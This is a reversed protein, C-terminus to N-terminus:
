TDAIERTLARYQASNKDVGAAEMQRQAEKLQDLKKTTDKVAQGLLDQKQKLLDTNKPDFKLLKNVDKLEKQTAELSKDVDALSKQLQTTNGDIEITIGKIRGGAM